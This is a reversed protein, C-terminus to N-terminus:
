DSMSGVRLASASPASTGSPSIRSRTATESFSVSRSNMPEADRAVLGMDRLQVVSRAEDVTEPRADQEDSPELAVVAIGDVEDVISKRHRGFACIQIRARCFTRRM